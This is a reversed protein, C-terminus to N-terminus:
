KMDKILKAQGDVRKAMEQAKLSNSQALLRLRDKEREYYERNEKEIDTQLKLLSQAKELEAAIETIENKSRQIERAIVAEEDDNPGRRRLAPDLHAALYAGEGQGPVANTAYGIDMMASKAKDPFQNLMDGGVRMMGAVDTGGVAGEGAM